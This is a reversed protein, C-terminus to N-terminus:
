FRQRSKNKALIRLQYSRLIRSAIFQICTFCVTRTLSPFYTIIYFRRHKASCSSHTCTLAFIIFCETRYWTHSRVTHLRSIWMSHTLWVKCWTLWAPSSRIWSRLNGSCETSRLRNVSILVSTKCTTFVFLWNWKGFLCWLIEMIYVFSSLLTVLM